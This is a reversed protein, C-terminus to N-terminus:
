FVCVFWPEEMEVGCVPCASFPRREDDAFAECEPCSRLEVQLVDLCCCAILLASERVRRCAALCVFVFLLAGVTSLAVCRICAGGPVGRM